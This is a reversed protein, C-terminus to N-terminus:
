GAPDGGGPMASGDPPRADPSLEAECWAGYTGGASAHWHIWEPTEYGHLEMVAAQLANLREPSTKLLLQVEDSREMRGAWRYRSRVPFLNVCAVLRRELLAEALREAREPSSETTLVLCLPRENM